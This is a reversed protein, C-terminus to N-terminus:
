KKMRVKKPYTYKFDEHKMDAINEISFAMFSCLFVIILLILM